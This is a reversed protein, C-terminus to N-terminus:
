NITVTKNKIIFEFDFVFSIGEMVEQLSKNDFTGTYDKAADIEKNMVFSVGFWKSLELTIEHINKGELHLIGDKWSLEALRNFSTKQLSKSQNSYVAMDDPLLILESKEGYQNYSNVSVKGTSVAVRIDKSKPFARINFSTGIVKTQIEGSMITFPRSPDKAVDFFAEGELKVNRSINTFEQPYTIKSNSNLKISTGDPLRVTMKQGNSVTKTILTIPEQNQFVENKWNTTIFWALLLLSISAAIGYQYDFKLNKKRPIKISASEKLINEYLEVYEKDSLHHDNRYNISGIIEKAENVTDFKHPNEQLWKKWFKQAHLDETKVWSVFFDDKLFDEVEYDSYKM